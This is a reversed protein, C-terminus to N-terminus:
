IGPGIPSGAGPPNPADGSYGGQSYQNKRDDLPAIQAANQTPTTTSTTTPTTTAATTATHPATSTFRHRHVTIDVHPARADDGPHEFFPARKSWLRLAQWYIAGVVKATMFPHHALMRYLNRRTLPERRMVMTADFDISDQSKQSEQSDQSEREPQTHLNQMHVVLREGPVTFRWDYLQDMPMFPSVHFNKHFRFHKKPATGLNRQEDLVYCHREGWPTNNIEAVIVDVATADRNYCYYFSVPNMVYGYYRLHTLLGISGQPRAGTHEEVLDRVSDALPLAPDGLHDSRRFSALAPRDVAFLPVGRFVRDLEDLDLYLQFVRYRFAHHLPAFRRHRVWGRYICSRLDIHNM